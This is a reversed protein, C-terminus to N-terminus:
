LYTTEKQEQEQQKYRDPLKWPPLVDFVAVDGEVDYLNHDDPPYPREIQYGIHRAMRDIYSNAEPSYYPLQRRWYDKPWDEDLYFKKVDEVHLTGPGNKGQRGLMGFMNAYQALSCIAGSNGFRFNPNTAKSDNHRRHHHEATDEIILTEGDKSASLLQKLLTKNLNVNDGVRRDDRTPAALCNIKFQVADDAFMDLDIRPGPHEKRTPGLVIEINDDGFNWVVRAAQAIEDYSINRGSRNIFGRNALTNVGPCSSRRYYGHGSGNTHKEYYHIKEDWEFPEKYPVPNHPSPIFLDNHGIAKQEQAGFTPHNSLPSAFTFAFSSSAVFLLLLNITPSM